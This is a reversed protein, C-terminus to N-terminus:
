RRLVILNMTEAIAEARNLNKPWTRHLESDHPPPPDSSARDGKAKGSYSL